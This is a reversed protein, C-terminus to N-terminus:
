LLDYRPQVSVPYQYDTDNDARWSFVAIQWRSDKYREPMWLEKMWENLQNAQIPTLRDITHQHYKTDYIEVACDFDKYEGVIHFHPPNIEKGYVEVRCIGINDLEIYGVFSIDYYDPDDHTYLIIRTKM